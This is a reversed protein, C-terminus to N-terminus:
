RSPAWFAFGQSLRPHRLVFLGSALGLLVAATVDSLHHAGVWVRAWAMLATGGFAVMVAGLRWRRNRLSVLALPVLFGAVVSTHASPFSQFDRAGTTWLRLGKVPGYWGPASESFPRARGSVARIGNASLGAISACLGMLLALRQLGLAGTKKGWGWLVVGIALVGYWDGWASVRGAFWRGTGNANERVLAVVQADWLFACWLLGVGGVGLFVLPLARKWLPPPQSNEHM